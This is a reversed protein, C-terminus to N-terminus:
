VQILLPAFKGKQRQLTCRSRAEFPTGQQGVRCSGQLLSTSLVPWSTCIRGSPHGTAGLYQGRPQRSLHSVGDQGPQAGRCCATWRVQMCGGAFRTAIRCAPEVQLRPVKRLSVLGKLLQHALNGFIVIIPPQTQGREGEGGDGGLAFLYLAGTSMGCSEDHSQSSVEGLLHHTSTDTCLAPVQEAHTM